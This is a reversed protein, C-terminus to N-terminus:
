NDRPLDSCLYKVLLRCASVSKALGKFIRLLLDLKMIVLCHTNMVKIIPFILLAYLLVHCIKGSM